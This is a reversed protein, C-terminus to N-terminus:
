QSVIQKRTLPLLILQLDSIPKQEYRELETEIETLGFTVVMEM